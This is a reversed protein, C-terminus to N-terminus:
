QISLKPSALLRKIASVAELLSFPKQLSMDAGYDIAVHLLDNELNSGTLRAPGGGSMAIIKLKPWRRRLEAITELGNKEPMFLDIIM